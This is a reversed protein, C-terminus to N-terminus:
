APWGASPAVAVVDLRQILAESGADAAARRTAAAMLVSPDPAPGEEPRYIVEGLGVLVPTQDPRMVLTEWHLGGPALSEAGEDGVLRRSSVARPMRCFM